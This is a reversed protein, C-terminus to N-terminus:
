ISKEIDLPTGNLRENGAAPDKWKPDFWSLGNMPDPVLKLWSTQQV